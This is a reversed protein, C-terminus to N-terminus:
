KQPHLSRLVLSVVSRWSPGFQPANCECGVSTKIVWLGLFLKVKINNEPNVTPNTPRGSILEQEQETATTMGSNKIM